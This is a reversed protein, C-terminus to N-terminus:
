WSRRRWPEATSRTIGIRDRGFKATPLITARHCAVVVGAVFERRCSSSVARRIGNRALRRSRTEEVVEGYPEAVREAAPYVLGAAVPVPAMESADM